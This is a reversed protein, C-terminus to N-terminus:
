DEWTFGKKQFLVTCAEVVAEDYLIGRGMTVECLAEELSLPPRYPRHHVMAEVVDAVALIRALPHIAEGQLGKPYGSGDLREHHELVIEALPRLLDVSIMVEYGKQPHEEVIARELPTLTAPKNLIEGPVAIKGIDHLLGAVYVDRAEREGLGMALALARALQAVRRQHGATYPDKVEVFKSLIFVLDEFSRELRALAEKLREESFVQETIDEISGEYYLGNGEKGLVQQISLSAWFVEGDWRRLRCRFHAVKGEREMIRQWVSRDEPCVYFEFVSRGIVDGPDTFGLTKALAPNVDLITGEPSTRYLGIPANDFLRQYQAYLELSLRRITLLSEIRAQLEVQEIPTTIVEDVVTWLFHKALGLDQRSTVLMFPLFLPRERERRKEIASRWTQLVPGDVIGLSFRERLFIEEIPSGGDPILLPYRHGVFAELLKENARQHLALLIPEM